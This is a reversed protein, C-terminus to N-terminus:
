EDDDDIEDAEDAEFAEDDDDASRTAAAYEAMMQDMTWGCSKRCVALQIREHEMVYIHRDDDAIAFMEKTTKALTPFFESCM